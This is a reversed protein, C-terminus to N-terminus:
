GLIKSIKETLGEIQSEKEILKIAEAVLNEKEGEFWIVGNQGVTIKTNTRNKILNIMSGRRGILRPVKTSNIVIIRGSRFKKCKPDQMSLSVASTGAVSSVKAYILEGVDYITSLPTKTIDIFEKLGALPLYAYYPAKIDVVWGTPQVEKIEGIVMDGVKPIYVGSLPIVSIVRGNISVLGVRKAYISEGERFCNKGPVYDISRIIEEGPVVLERERKKLIGM